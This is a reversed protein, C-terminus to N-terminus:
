IIFAAEDLTTVGTLEIVSDATGDNDADIFLRGSASNLAINVSDSDLDSAANQLFTLADASDAQVSFEIVNDVSAM